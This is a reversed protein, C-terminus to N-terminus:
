AGFGDAFITDADPRLSAATFGAVTGPEAAGLTAAASGSRPPATSVFSFRFLTGWNLENGAPATWTIRGGAVSSTWDNASSLDGDSFSISTPSPDGLADVAFSGFGLNRIVRLNPESTNPDLVARAYDVNMVAYDYRWQGGGLDTARVAVRAKGGDRPDREGAPLADVNVERNSANPGPSTPNVWLNIVPGRTFAGLPGSSWLTSYTPAVQRYGMTNYVDVDDRVIYWSEFYYQAGPNAAATIQSERVIMRQSYSTNGSPDQSGNCDPDYISGCRGWLGRAPILERRPGLDGNSDNNGSSYTDGCGQWLIHSNGCNIECGSNITLFAHKVGSRAIQDIQGSADVRYLNWILFPHQDNRYPDFVGSFKQWWAIDAPEPNNQGSWIGANRLTSSPAFVVEGDDPGSPGDCSVAPNGAQRCRKYDISSMGTLWVDATYGLTPWNPQGTCGLPTAPSAGEQRVNTALRGDSVALGGAAPNALRAALEPAIRIDMTQIALVAAGETLEYMLHDIYFLLQGDQDQIDLILPDNERPRLRLDHADVVGRPSRFDFGGEIQLWGGTFGEVTRYPANFEIGGAQRVAFTLYEGERRGGKVGTLEIKLDRLIDTNFRFSLEGGWASWLLPTKPTAPRAAKSPPEQAAAAGPGAFSALCCISAAALVRRPSM